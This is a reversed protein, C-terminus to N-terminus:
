AGTSSAQRQDTETASTVASTVATEPFSVDECLDAIAGEWGISTLCIRDGESYPHLVWLGENNRRFVEVQPRIQSILVYEQLSELHRYDTFKPFRCHCLHAVQWGTQLAVFGGQFTISM